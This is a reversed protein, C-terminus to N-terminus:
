KKGQEEPAPLDEIEPAEEDKNDSDDPVPLEEEPPTPTTVEVSKNNSVRIEVTYDMSVFSNFQSMGVVTGKVEASDVYKIIYSINAGKSQYDEYFLRPLDGELQGRYDRLYPKGESYTVTINKNDQDTLKTGPEISQAILQGFKVKNHFRQKVTVNLGEVTMAEEVSYNAFNPVEIAKGLSLTIEIKDKKAVLEDAAISQSAVFGAEVDDSAADKYSVDIENTKAWQDVEEKSKNKFNPVKINKEFTEKGRSFYITAIDQRRYNDESITEDRIVFRTFEGEKVDDSYETVVQINEAKAEEKWAEFDSMTMVAFDPLEIKAEPDPGKSSTISITSGKKIKKGKVVSQTMIQNAPYEMSFEHTLELEMDNEDAWKRADSIPEGVFDKMEIYSLQYYIFGILAIGIITLVSFLIIKNRKKKRYTPDIEIQENSERTSRRDVVPEHEVPAPIDSQEQKNTPKSSSEKSLDDYKDKDFNSLFDSM